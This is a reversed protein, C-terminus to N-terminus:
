LGCSCSRDCGCLAQPYPSRRRFANGKARKLSIQSMYHKISRNQKDFVGFLRRGRQRTQALAESPCANKDFIRCLLATRRGHRCNLSHRATSRSQDIFEALAKTHRNQILKLRQLAQYLPKQDNLGAFLKRRFFKAKAIRSSGAVSSLMRLPARAFVGERGARETNRASPERASAHVLCKSDSSRAFPRCHRCALRSETECSVNTHGFPLCLGQCCVPNPAFVDINEPM